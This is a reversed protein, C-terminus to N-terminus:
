KVTRLFGYTVTFFQCSLGLPHTQFEDKIAMLKLQTEVSIHSYVPKGTEITEDDSDEDDQFLCKDHWRCFTSEVQVHFEAALIWISINILVYIIMSPVTEYPMDRFVLEPVQCYYAICVVHFALVHSGTLEKILKMKRKLQRYAKIGTRIKNQNAQFINLKFQWGLAFITCSLLFVFAYSIYFFKQIHM